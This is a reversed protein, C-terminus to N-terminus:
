EDELLISLLEMDKNVMEDIQSKSFKPIPRYEIEDINFEQRTEINRVYKTSWRFCVDVDIDQHLGRSILFDRKVRMMRASFGPSDLRVLVFGDENISIIQANWNQFRLVKFQQHRVVMKNFNTESQSVDDRADETLFTNRSRNRRGKAVWDSRREEIPDNINRYVTDDIVSSLSEKCDMYTEFEDFM